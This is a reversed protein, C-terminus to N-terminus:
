EDEDFVIQRVVTTPKRGQERRAVKARTTEPLKIAAGVTQEMQPHRTREGSSFTRGSTVEQYGKRLKGIIRREAESTAQRHSRFAFVKEQGRAGIRGWGIVLRCDGPTQDVVEVQWFKSSGNGVFEFRRRMHTTASM